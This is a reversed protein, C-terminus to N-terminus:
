NEYSVQKFIDERHGVSFATYRVTFGSAAQFLSRTLNTKISNNRGWPIERWNILLMPSDIWKKNVRIKKYGLAKTFDRVQSNIM